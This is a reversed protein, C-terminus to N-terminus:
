EQNAESMVKKATTVLYIVGLGALASLISAIMIGIKAEEIYVDQKFALETIFMSMTFGIGALFSVGAMHGWNVEESLAAIRLKVLVWCISFIGLFKGLFLGCIVGLSIPSFVLESANSLDIHVGANALAFIPMVVFAVFSHLSHELKQLPSSVEMTLENIRDLIAVQENSLLFRDKNDYQEFEDTLTRLRTLFYQEDVGTRMPIAFAALVGAITSHVGSLLFATWLGGIGFLAYFYINRVRLYNGLFLIGLFLFGLMLNFVSIKSTYFLAIVVVAGLDDVVALATLFVKVSLPVRDGALMLVGLAFAIDTATPIGWGSSTETGGNFYLFLMAPAFMGAGAAAVPLISQKLSSLQGVTLERKLELGVAFFFVAMLGDNIWHHLNNKLSFQGFSIEFEQNWIWHYWAHWPSNAWLMAIIVAFFLIISSSSEHKIFNAVSLRSLVGKKSKKIQEQEM